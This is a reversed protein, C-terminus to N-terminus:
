CTQLYIDLSDTGNNIVAFDPKKDNNFDGVVVSSPHSGYNTAVVLFNAFTGNGYGVFVGQNNGDYNAVLVDLFTDNNFDAVALSYPGSGSGTSYTMQNKFSGNGHGLFIGM